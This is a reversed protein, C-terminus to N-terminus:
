DATPSPWARFDLAEARCSANAKAALNLKPYRGSWKPPKLDASRLAASEAGILAAAATITENIGTDAMLAALADRCEPGIDDTDWNLLAMQIVFPVASTHGSIKIILVFCPGREGSPWHDRRM